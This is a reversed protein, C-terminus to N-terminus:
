EGEGGGEFWEVDPATEDVEGGFVPGEEGFAGAGFGAGDDEFKAAGNVFVAGDPPELGGVHCADDEAGNGLLPKFVGEAGFFGNVNAGGFADAALYGDVEGTFVLGFVQWIAM